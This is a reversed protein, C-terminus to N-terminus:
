PGVFLWYGNVQAWQSWGAGSNQTYGIEAPSGEGRAFVITSNSTPSTVVTPDGGLKWWGNLETWISWGGGSNSSVGVSGDNGRAFVMTTKTTSNYVATPDGAFTWYPNVETWISWGSGSNASFGIRGDNGRAFVTTTKTDPNYVAHPDGAFTWYPNVETWISWGGGSNSSFGIRGDNGRAFVTTTKTAPNYVATPDGAFKWYPNVETWISWGGGSNSSFGMSGDNGRAFVTTTKTAPDYVATPKGQLRWYPNVETWQSWGSGSNQSYGLEGTTGLGFVTTTNTDPNYVSWGSDSTPGTYGTQVPPTNEVPSVYEKILWGEASAGESYDPYTTTQVQGNNSINTAVSSSTGPAVYYDNGSTITVEKGGPLGTVLGVHEITGSSNEFVVADGLHPTSSITHENTGYTDFSAAAGNLYNTVGATVGAQAWVWAAFDACWNEEKGGSGNCSYNSSDGPNVYGKGGLACPFNGTQGYAISAITGGVTSASAPAAGALVALPAALASATLAGLLRRTTTRSV